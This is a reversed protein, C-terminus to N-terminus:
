KKFTFFFTEPNYEAHNEMFSVLKQQDDTNFTKFLSYANDLKTDPHVILDTQPRQRLPHLILEPISPHQYEADTATHQFKLINKSTTKLFKRIRPADGISLDIMGTIEPYKKILTDSVCPNFKSHMGTPNIPLCGPKIKSCKKIFNRKTNKTVRTYKSPSLLWLIKVPHELIYVSMHKSHKCWMELVNKALFPNPYFFVNHNPSICRLEDGIPIGRIEDDNKKRVLRFLLTGKPLEKVQLKTNRYPIEEM